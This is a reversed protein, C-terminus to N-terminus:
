HEWFLRSCSRLPDPQLKSIHGAVKRTLSKNCGSSKPTQSPAGQLSNFIACGCSEYSEKDGSIKLTRQMNCQAHRPQFIGHAMACSRYRQMPTWPPQHRAQMYPKSGGLDFIWTSAMSGCHLELIPLALMCHHLHLRCTLLLQPRSTCMCSSTTQCSLVEVWPPAQSPALRLSPHYPLLLEANRCWHEARSLLAAHRWLDEMGVSLWPPCREKHTMHFLGGSTGQHSTHDSRIHM